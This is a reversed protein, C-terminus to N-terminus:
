EDKPSEMEPSEGDASIVEWEAEPGQNAQSYAHIDEYLDGGCHEIELGEYTHDREPEEYVAEEKKMLKYHWVLPIVICLLLFFAQLFIVFDKMNSRWKASGKDSRRFVQLETGPGYQDKVKCYYIGSDTVEVNPITLSTNLILASKHGSFQQRPDRHAKVKYWEIKEGLNKNGSFLCMINVTKGTKVGYFRPKQDIHLKTNAAALNVLALLSCSVIFYHM